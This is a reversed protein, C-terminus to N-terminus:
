VSCRAMGPNENKRQGIPNANIGRSKQRRKDRRSTERCDRSRHRHTEEAIYGLGSSCKGTDDHWCLLSAFGSECCNNGFKIKNIKSSAQMNAHFKGGLSKTGRLMIYGACGVCNWLNQIIRTIRKLKRVAYKARNSECRAM